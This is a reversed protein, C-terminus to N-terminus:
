TPKLYLKRTVALLVLLGLHAIFAILDTWGFQDTFFLLCVVILFVVAFIYFLKSQKRIGLGFGLMACAGIFMLIAYILSINASVGQRGSLITQSLIGLVGWGIALMLFWIWAAQVTAPITRPKNIPKSERDTQNEM